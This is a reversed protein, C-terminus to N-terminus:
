DTVQERQHTLSNMADLVSRGEDGMPVGVYKGTMGNVSVSLDLRDKLVKTSLLSRLNARQNESGVVVGQRNAYNISAMYNTKGSGGNIGVNHNHSVGTRLM